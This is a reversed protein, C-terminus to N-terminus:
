RAPAIAYVGGAVAAFDVTRTARLAVTPLADAQTIEPRGADVLAFFPNPNADTAAVPPATAGSIAVPDATRLRLYGGLKARVIARILKGAAWELDVEFGGRAKLGTVRGSPWASPLAPLLQLM